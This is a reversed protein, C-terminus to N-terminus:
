QATNSFMHASLGCEKIFPLRLRMYLSLVTSSFMTADVWLAVLWVHAKCSGLIGWEELRCTVSCTPVDQM